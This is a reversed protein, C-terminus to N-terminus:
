GRGPRLTLLETILDFLNATQGFDHTMTVAHAQATCSLTSFITAMSIRAECLLVRLAKSSCAPNPKGGGRGLNVLPGDFSGRNGSAAITAVNGQQQGPVLRFRDGSDM